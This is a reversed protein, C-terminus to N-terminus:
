RSTGELHLASSVEGFQDVYRDGSTTRVLYVPYYPSESETSWGWVLEPDRTPIAGSAEVLKTAGHGTVFPYRPMATDSSTVGAFAPRNGDLTFMAVARLGHAGVVSALLYDPFDAVLSRVRTVQTVHGDTLASSLGHRDLGREKSAKKFAVDIDELEASAALVQDVATTVHRVEGPTSDWTPAMAPDKEGASEAFSPYTNLGKRQVAVWKGDWYSCDQSGWSTFYYKAWTTYDIAQNSKLNIKGCTYACSGEGPTRAAGSRAYWPDDVYVTSTTFNCSDLAPNCSTVAGKFVFAHHGRNVLAGAVNGYDYLQYVLASTGSAANTYTYDDYYYGGPTWHYLIWAWALPDLGDHSPNESNAWCRKKSSGYGHITDPDINPLQSAPVDIAPYTGTPNIKKLAMLSSTSVCTRDNPQQIHTISINKTYSGLATSPAVLACCVLL